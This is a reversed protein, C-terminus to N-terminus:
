LYTLVAMGSSTITWAAGDQVYPPPYAGVMLKMGVSQAADLTPKWSAVDDLRLTVVAFDYGLAKLTKFDGDDPFYTGTLMKPSTPSQALATLITLGLLLLTFLGLISAYRLRVTAM